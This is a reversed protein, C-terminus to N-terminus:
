QVGKYEENSAYNLSRSIQPSQIVEEMRFFFSKGFIGCYKNKCTLFGEESIYLQKKCLDCSEREGEQRYICEINENKKFEEAFQNWIKDYNPKKKIKKTDNSIYNKKTDNLM